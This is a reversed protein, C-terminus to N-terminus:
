IIFYKTFDLNEQWYEKQTVYKRISPKIDDINVPTKYNEELICWLVYRRRIYKFFIILHAPDFKYKVLFKNIDKDYYTRLNLLECYDIELKTLKKNNTFKPTCWSNIKNMVYLTEILDEDTIENKLAIKIEHYFNVPELYYKFKKKDDNNDNDNDNDEENNYKIYCNQNMVKCFLSETYSSKFIQVFKYIDEKFYMLLIYYLVIYVKQHQENKLIPLYQIFKDISPSNYRNVLLLKFLEILLINIIINNNHRTLEKSHIIFDLLYDSLKNLSINDFYLNLNLEFYEKKVEKWDDISHRSIIDFVSCVSGIKKSIEHFNNINNMNYIESLERGRNESILTNIIYLTGGKILYRYFESPLNKTIMIFMNLNYKTIADKTFTESNFINEIDVEIKYDNLIGLFGFLEIVRKEELLNSLIYNITLNMYDLIQDRMHSDPNSSLKNTCYNIYEKYMITLIVLTDINYSYTLFFINTVFNTVNEISQTNFWMKIKNETLNLRNLTFFKKALIDVKLDYTSFYTYIDDYYKDEYVLIDKNYHLNHEILYFMCNALKNFTDKNVNELNKNYEAEELQNSIMNLFKINVEDCIHKVNIIYKFVVDHTIYSFDKEGKDDKDDKHNLILERLETSEDYLIKTIQDIHEVTKDFNYLDIGNRKLRTTEKYIEDIKNIITVFFKSNENFLVISPNMYIANCILAQTTIYKHLICDFISSTTDLQEKIYKISHKITHEICCILPDDKDVIIENHDHHNNNHNNNNIVSKLLKCYECIYKEENEKNFIKYPCVYYKNNCSTYILEKQVRLVDKDVKDPNNDCM